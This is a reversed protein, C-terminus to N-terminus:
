GFDEFDERQEANNILRAGGRQQKSTQKRIKEEKKGEREKRCRM